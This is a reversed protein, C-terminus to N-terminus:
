SLRYKDGQSDVLHVGWEASHLAASEVPHPAELAVSPDPVEELVRFVQKPVLILDHLFERAQVELGALHPTILEVSHPAELTVRSDPVEELARFVQKLVPILDHSTAETESALRAGIALARLGV